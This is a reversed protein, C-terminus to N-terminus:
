RGAWQSRSVSSSRETMRPGRALGCLILWGAAPAPTGWGGDAIGPGFDGSVPYATYIYGPLGVAPFRDGNVVAPDLPLRALM